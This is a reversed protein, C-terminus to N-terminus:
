TLFEFLCSIVFSKKHLNYHCTPLQFSHGRDRLSYSRERDPPLLPYLCHSSRQMKCFLDETTSNIFPQMTILKSTFGYRYSRKLFGDIKHVLEINLLPGWAPLAYLLRSLVIAQFVTHLSQLPLGQDRLQKLLFIRQSCIKLIYDVHDVFSFTSQFVVGLLKASQVQEIGELSEPLSLRSPHPRHLVIEKTKHLNIVMGNRDAWERVHCFEDALEVDTNEPVLLNTDDAYKFLLNMESISRLDSAMVIWLTPGIGSGQIISRTIPHMASFHGDQTKCMQGRDTLFAVIWNLISSPLNIASLKSLLIDHKVVDFAKSFDILLCRVYSNNELMLTAHHLFHVLACTTSGTPRFGFQDALMDNPIAPRLWQRVVMKEAVRSLIPTVSIPRYDALSSPCPIKPVPTVVATLWDVPVTGTQFSKNCIAAVATALEYSCQKFVWCPLDNYGSSTHKMKRLCSEVEYDTLSWVRCDQTVMSSCFQRVDYKSYSDDTAISAFYNNVTDPNSLYIDAHTTRSKTKARVANWLEKPSAEALHVLRKKRFESILNNIKAALEDAVENKGQKRLKRRKALLSKVLPTVFDPDRPGITVTKTPICVAILNRVIQLFWKYMTTVCDSAVVPSWDFTGLCWRLKDTNSQRLDYLTVKKRTVKNKTLFQMDNLPHVLVASHKTKLLSRFVTTTYIDPRNVFVKDLVNSGHTVDTVILCLGYQVELFGLDLHNFDGAVIIVASPHSVILSQVDASLQDCFLSPPYRPKPPHYCCAIYYLEGHVTCQLWLIELNSTLPTPQIIKCDQYKSRAYICVGGGIRTKRDLRFLLFGSLALEADSQKDSFWTEDVLVFDCNHSLVDTHL